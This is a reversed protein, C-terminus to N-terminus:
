VYAASSRGALLPVISAKDTCRQLASAGVPMPAGKGCTDLSSSGGAFGLLLQMPLVGCRESCSQPDGCQEPWEIFPVLLTCPHSSVM